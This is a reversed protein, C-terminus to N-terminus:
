NWLKMLLQKKMQSAKQIAQKAQQQVYNRTMFVARISRGVARVFQPRPRLVLAVM